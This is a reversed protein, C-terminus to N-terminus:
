SSAYATVVIIVQKEDDPSVIVEWRNGEHVTEVIFTGHEQEILGTADELMARLGAEHFGRDQMRKLCHSSIEIEWDWWDPWDM